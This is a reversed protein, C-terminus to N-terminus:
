RWFRKPIYTPKRYRARKVPVIRAIKKLSYSFRQTKTERTIELGHEFLGDTLFSDDGNNMDILSTVLANWISNKMERGRVVPNASSTTIFVEVKVTEETGDVIKDM